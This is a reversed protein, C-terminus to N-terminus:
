HPDGEPGFAALFRDRFTDMRWIPAAPGPKIGDEWGWSAIRDLVKADKAVITVPVDRNGSTGAVLPAPPHDGLFIMVTDDGAYETLFGLLSDISYAISRAYETRVRSEDKWLSEPSPAAAASPGYVSGDGIADWDLMGPVPTWPTHSSTLTIEAFMRGRDTRSYELRNFASLVYQDPMRSWSFSPGQYGVNRSDYLQQYGYFDGEPWAFTHGPEIGVTRHGADRFARTLTLRDTAVLSRYRRENDIWLGSQFTSHALWSGGGATSSTLWGTRAAFGAAALKESNAALSNLVATNYRPDELANRGYSEVFSLIVDKDRLATLMSDAPRDAYADVRVEGAFRKRDALDNPLALATHAALDAATHSAVPIGGILQFSMATLAIWAAGVAGLGRWAWARHNQLIGSLRLVAWTMTAVLGISFLVLGIAVAIAAGRGISDALVTYGDDFLIWDLAPDFRRALVAFFGIDILKVVTLLGLTVGLGAALPRRSRGLRGRDPLLLLLAGAILAEVPVRLLATFVSNGPPLRFIQDPVILALFVLVAAFGTTLHRIIRRYPKTPSM